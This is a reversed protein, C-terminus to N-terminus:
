QIKCIGRTKGCTKTKGHQHSKKTRRCETQMFSLLEVILLSSLTQSLKHLTMFSDDSRCLAKKTISSLKHQYSKRAHKNGGKKKGGVRRRKSLHRSLSRKTSSLELCDSRTVKSSDGTKERLTHRLSDAIPMARQLPHFTM